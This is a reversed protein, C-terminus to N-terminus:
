LADADCKSLAANNRAIITDATDVGICFLAARGFYRTDRGNGCGLDILIRKNAVYNEQEFDPPTTTTAEAAATDHCQIFKLCFDAFSSAEEPVSSKTYFSNWYETM